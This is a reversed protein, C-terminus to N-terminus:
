QCMGGASALGANDGGDVGLEPLHLDLHRCSEHAGYGALVDTDVRVRRAAPDAFTWGVFGISIEHEAGCRFVGAGKFVDVERSKADDGRPAPAHPLPIDCIRDEAQKLLGPQASLLVDPPGLHRSARENIAAPTILLITRLHMIGHQGDPCSRLSFRHSSM